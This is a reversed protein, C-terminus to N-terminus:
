ACGAVGGDARGALVLVHGGTVLGCFLYLDGGRWM